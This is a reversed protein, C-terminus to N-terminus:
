PHTTLVVKGGIASWLALGVSQASWPAGLETAKQILADAYKFYYGVTFAPKGAAPIAAGVLDDLFPFELPRAIALVASATAPGVGGLECFASLARRPALGTAFATRACSDVLEPANARVLALNRARWEGRKMKWRVILSLEELDITPPTREQVRTPLEERYWRDLEALDTSGQAAIVTPYTDYAHQWATRDAHEFLRVGDAISM